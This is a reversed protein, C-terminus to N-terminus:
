IRDVLRMLEDRTYERQTYDRVSGTRVPGRQRHRESRACFAEVTRCGEAHCKCLVAVAYRWSPAPADMAAKIALVLM